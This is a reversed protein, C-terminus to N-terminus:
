SHLMFLRTYYRFRILDDFLKEMHRQREEEDHGSVREDKNHIRTYYYYYDARDIKLRPLVQNDFIITRLDFPILFWPKRLHLKELLPLEKKIRSFPTRGSSDRFISININNNTNLLRLIKITKPFISFQLAGLYSEMNVLLTMDELSPCNQCIGNLLSESKNIDCDEPGIFTLRRTHAGLYKRCRSFESHHYLTVERWIEKNLFLSQDGSALGFNIKDIGSCLNLIEIKLEVPLSQWM